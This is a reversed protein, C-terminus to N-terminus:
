GRSDQISSSVKPKLYSENANSAQARFGYLRALQTLEGQMKTSGKLALALEAALSYSFATVFLPDFLNPNEVKATYFLEAEEQNTLIIKQSLDDNIAIEFEIKNPTTHALSADYFSGSMSYGTNANYIKIAKLCDSPYAYAYDYGSYTETLLALEERRNAFNWDFDRLLSDRVPEYIANCFKAEKTVETFSNISYAGLRSLALNCIGVSNM